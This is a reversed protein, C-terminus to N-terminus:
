QGDGVGAGAMPRKARECARLASCAPEAMKLLAFPAIANVGTAEVSPQTALAAAFLRAVFPVIRSAMGSPDCLSRAIEGSTRSLTAATAADTGDGLGDGDDGAM